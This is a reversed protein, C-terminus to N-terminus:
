ERRKRAILEPPEYRSVIEEAEGITHCYGGEPGGKMKPDYFLYEGTRRDIVAWGDSTLGFRDRMRSKRAVLEKRKAARYLRQEQATM